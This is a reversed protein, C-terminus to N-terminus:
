MFVFMGNHRPQVSTDVYINFGFEERLVRCVHFDESDYHGDVVGTKFVNYHKMESSVTGRSFPNPDYTNDDDIAKQILKNVVKRSLIMVATGVRDVELLDDDVKDLVKGINYVPKGESDFGKLAVPAAIIDKNHSMLKLLGDAPLFIDSDIFVLHTFDKMMHFYSIVSNRGRPILSENGITMVTFPIGCRHFDIISHLYDTHVMANYAPTGIFLNMTKMHEPINTADFLPANGNGAFNDNAHKPIKDVNDNTTIPAIDHVLKITDNNM